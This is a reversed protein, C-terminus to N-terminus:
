VSHIGIGNANGGYTAATAFAHDPVRGLVGNIPHINIAKQYM